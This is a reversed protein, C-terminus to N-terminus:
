ESVPYPHIGNDYMDHLLNQVSYQHKSGSLVKTTLDAPNEAGPIHTTLTKGM